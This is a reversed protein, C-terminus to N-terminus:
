LMKKDFDTSPADTTIWHVILELLRQIDIDSSYKIACEWVILVRWQGKKLLRLNKEDREKNRGLKQEWYLSNTKPIRMYKCGHNHWFCGNIMIVANFKTLVIDPKGPLKSSHLRYRFGKSFLYKRVLMEPRTNKSKIKSMNISRESKSLNDM